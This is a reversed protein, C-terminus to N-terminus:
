RKPTRVILSAPRLSVELSSAPAIIEGDTERPLPTHATIEVHKARFRELRHDDHRSRTLIRYGVRIWGTLSSPTLIGVDLLGDDPRADPLLPFGGPLLGANGVVVCRASRHLPPGGDLRVTFESPKGRLRSLAAEAYAVWGLHLKLMRRTAEVVAADLGIGAMATFPTGDALGLDLVTEHSGFGTALAARLPRPIRLAKAALNATGCPVIALRVGTGALVSACARVTGDGGVAFVLEAGAAVAHRALGEGHDERTTPLFLPAWGRALATARCAHAFQDPSPVRTRNIIFAVTPSPDPGATM